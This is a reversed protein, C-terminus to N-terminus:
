FGLWQPQSAAQGFNVLAPGDRDSSALPKPRGAARDLLGERSSLMASTLKLFITVEPNSSSASNAKVVAFLDEIEAPQRRAAVEGIANEGGRVADGDCSRRTSVPPRPALPMRTMPSSARISFKPDTTVRPPKEAGSSANESPRRANPSRKRM